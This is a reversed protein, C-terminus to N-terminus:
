ESKEKLTKDLVRVAWRTGCGHLRRGATVRELGPLIRFVTASGSLSRLGFSAAKQFCVKLQEPFRNYEPVFGSPVRSSSSEL